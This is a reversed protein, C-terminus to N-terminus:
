VYIGESEKQKEIKIISRAFEETIEYYSAFREVTLFNNFYDLYLERFSM